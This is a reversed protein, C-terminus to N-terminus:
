DNEIYVTQNKDLRTCIFARIMEACQLCEQATALAIATAGTIHPALDVDTVEPLASALDRADQSSMPVIGAGGDTWGTLTNWESILRPLSEGGTERWTRDLIAFFLPNIYTDSVAFRDLWFGETPPGYFVVGSYDGYRIGHAFETNEAV